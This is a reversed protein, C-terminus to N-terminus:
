GDFGSDPSRFLDVAQNSAGTVGVCLGNVRTFVRGEDMMSGGAALLEEFRMNWVYLCPAGPHEAISGTSAAVGRERVPVAEASLGSTDSDSM